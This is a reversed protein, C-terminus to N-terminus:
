DDNRNQNLFAMRQLDQRREEEVTDLLKQIMLFNTETMRGEYDDLVTKLIDLM